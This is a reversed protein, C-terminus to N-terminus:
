ASKPKPGEVRVEATKPRMAPQAIRCWQEITDDDAREWDEPVPALRRKEGPTEFCLWGYSFEAAVRARTNRGGIRRDEGSRRDPRRTRDDLM